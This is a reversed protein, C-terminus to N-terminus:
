MRGSFLSVTWIRSIPIHKDLVDYMFQDTAYVLHHTGDCDHTRMFLAKTIQMVISQNDRLATILNRPKSSPKSEKPTANNSAIQNDRITNRKQIFRDVSKNNAKYKDRPISSRPNSDAKLEPQKFKLVPLLSPPSAIAFTYASITSISTAYRSIDQIEFCSDDVTKKALARNEPTPILDLIICAALGKTLM